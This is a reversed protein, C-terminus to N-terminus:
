QIVTSRTEEDYELHIEKGIKSSITERFSPFIKKGSDDEVPANFETDTMLMSVQQNELFVPLYKAINNRPEGSVRGLPTDILLPFQFGTVDRLAAMFSLALVLKEGKSLATLIWSGDMHHVKIEYDSNIKVKDFTGKKWILKLFYEQTKKQAKERVEELLNHKIKGLEKLANECLKIRRNQHDFKSEKAIEDDFEKKLKDYKKKSIEFEKKLGGYEIGIKRDEKVLKVKEEQKKDIEEHGTSGLKASIEDLERINKIRVSRLELLKISFKQLQPVLHETNLTNSLEFKLTNCLNQIKSYVAISQLKKLKDHEDTHPLVDRGCICKRENLLDTIFTHAIKPPLEGKKVKSSIGLLANRISDSLTIKPFNEIIFDKQRIKLQEEDEELEKTKIKLETERKQLGQTERNQLIFEECEKIKKDIVDMKIKLPVLKKEISAQEKQEEKMSNQIIQTEPKLHKINTRLDGVFVELHKLAKETVIIKSVDELGKKINEIEEFFEELKEGDFLFYSSLDEPLIKSVEKEFYSSKDWGKKSDYVYFTNEISPTCKQPIVGERVRINESSKGSLFLTMKRSIKYKPGSEDSLVVTVITRVLGEDKTENYKRLNVTPFDEDDKALNKEKGYFCWTIANMVNTKGAGNTGRIITFPKKEDQSFEISNKDYYQRFNEIDLTLIKLRGFHFSM